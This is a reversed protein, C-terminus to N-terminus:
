TQVVAEIKGQRRDVTVAISGGVRSVSLDISADAIALNRIRLEDVSEPLAPYSFLVERRRADISMGLAAEILMFAAGAAWSQPSCAVPYQTPAEGHRRAFGCYLEPMRHLEFWTSADFLAGLIRTTLAKCHYRSAGAALIANDHPWVSGNHYAMPNYCLEGEAVTRVGWGSFFADHAFGQVVKRSHDEAAIGTYLCHGPNSTRVRCPKKEGDLALAYSQIDECWYEAQFRTRLTEAAERLPTALSAHGLAEAIEAAALRAAYVYGQVECLAIPGDALAGNAHFVSDHSDKWGQHVLGTPSRRHYEVFGDGDVDGYRDIWDLAAQVNPWISRLFEMDATRRWYAGALMVFLPTADVSGYYRGFPIEGLAAMEGHRAEHLIKGPECDREASVETAQTHALFALVGRAVAPWMWLTELATVIGDRGFPTDFWPVGAYPYLGTPTATMMMALDAASTRLWADLQENSTHVTCLRREPAAHSAEAHQLADAWSHAAVRPQGQECAITVSIVREARAGLELPYRIEHDGTREGAPSVLVRTRRTVNDLGEYGLVLGGDHTLLPPLMRGRRARQQGRVEFIDAYDSAFSLTLDIAVSALSFNSVRILEYCANEWLLKTRNIHLTGRPLVLSDGVYLDPNTLDVAMLVNDRRVNSSLLLPRHSALALRMGSLHRTGAHYLGEEHRAETDIDGFENFVGFTDGQKLVRTREAVRVETAVIYYHKGADILPEAAM